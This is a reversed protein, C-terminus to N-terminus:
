LRDPKIGTSIGPNEFVCSEVFEQDIKNAEPIKNIQAKMSLDEDLWVGLSKVNRSPIISDAVIRVPHHPIRLVNRANSFWIVEIKFVNLKM